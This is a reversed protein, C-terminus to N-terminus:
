DNKKDQVVKKLIKILVKNTSKAQDNAHPHHATSKKHLIMHTETLEEIVENLFHGGRDSIVGFRTMINHYLFKAM